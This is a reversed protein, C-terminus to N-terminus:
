IVKQKHKRKIRNHKILRAALQIGDVLFGSSIRKLKIVNPNTFIIFFYQEIM